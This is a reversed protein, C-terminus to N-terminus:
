AVTQGRWTARYVKGYGGFGIEPGMEFEDFDLKHSIQSEVILNLQVTGKGQIDIPYYTNIRTTCFIKLNLILDYTAGKKKKKKQISTM